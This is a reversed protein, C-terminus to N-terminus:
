SDNNLGDEQNEENDQNEEEQEEEEQQRQQLQEPVEKIEFHPQIEEKLLVEAISDGEFLEVLSEVLLKRTADQNEWYTLKAQYLLEGSQGFVSAEPSEILISPINGLVKRINNASSEETYRFLEDNIDTKVDIVQIPDKDGEYELEMHMFGEHNDVGVFGNLSGRVQDRMDVMKTYRLQDAENLDNYNIGRYSEEIFPATVLIKKGFFGKRLSKNKFQSARYESDADNLAQHIPAFPYEFEGPNYFFIQGPYKEISGAKQIQMKVVDPNPNYADYVQLLNKKISAKSWDHYKIYKGSYEKSDKEGKRVQDFPIVKRSIIEGGLNYQVHVAYGGYRTLSASADSLLHFFTSRSKVLTSVTEKNISEIGSGTLFQCLLKIGTAATPSNYTIRKVREPYNNDSGNKIIKLSKDYEFVEKTLEIVKVYANKIFGM